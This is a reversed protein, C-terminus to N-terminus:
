ADSAEMLRAHIVPHIAQRPLLLMAVFGTATKRKKEAPDLDEFQQYRARWEEYSGVNPVHQSVHTYADHLEEESFDGPMATEPMLDVFRDFFLRPTVLVTHVNRQVALIGIIQFPTDEVEPSEAYERLISGLEDALPEAEDEPPIPVSGRVEELCAEKILGAIGATKGSPPFFEQRILPDLDDPTIYAVMRQVPDLARSALLDPPGFDVIDFLESHGGATMAIM